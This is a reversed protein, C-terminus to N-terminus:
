RRTKEFQCSHSGLLVPEGPGRLRVCGRRLNVFADIESVVKTRIPIQVVLFLHEGVPSAHVGVEVSDRAILVMESALHTV